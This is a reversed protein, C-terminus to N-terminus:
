NKSPRSKAIRVTGVRFHDYAMHKQEPFGAFKFYLNGRHWTIFYKSVDSARATSPFIPGQDHRCSNRLAQEKFSRNRALLVNNKSAVAQKDEKACGRYSLQWLTEQDKGKKKPNSKGREKGRRNTQKVNKM